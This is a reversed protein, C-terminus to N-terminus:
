KLFVSNSESSKKKFFRTSLLSLISMPLIYFIIQNSTPHAASIAERRWRESPTSAFKMVLDAKSFNIEYSISDAPQITWLEQVTNIDYGVLRSYRLILDNQQIDVIYMVFILVFSICYIGEPETLSKQTSLVTILAALIIVYFGRYQIAQSELKSVINEHLSQVQLSYDTLHQLRESSTQYDTLSRREQLYNLANHTDVPKFNGYFGLIALVILFGLLFFSEILGWNLKKKDAIPKNFIRKYNPKMTIEKFHHVPLINFIYYFTLVIVAVGPYEFADLRDLLQFPTYRL